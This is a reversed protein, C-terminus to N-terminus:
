YYIKFLLALFTVPTRYKLVLGLLCPSTATYCWTNKLKASSPPLYVTERRPRKLKSNHSVTIQKPTSFFSKGRDSIFGRDETKWKTAQDSYQRLWLQKCIFVSIQDEWRQNVIEVSLSRRKVIVSVLNQSVCYAVKLLPISQLVSHLIKEEEIFSVLVM